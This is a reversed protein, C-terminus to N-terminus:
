RMGICNRPGDGFPFYCNTPRKAIEEQTFREPDFTEPDKWYREDYHFGVTPIWVLSDKPIVHKSNPIKYDAAAKRLNAFGPSYMRLVESVVQNLYTMEHLNDYTIEGNDAKTVEAIEKRLREQMEKRRSLEMLAFSITTSSTESGGFFFVFAQATIQNQTLKKMESSFEGDISGKNKLQILMNLFDARKDNTKERHKINDGVVNMFFNTLEVGFQRMKLFKAVKPFAMMFFLQLASIGETGFVEKGFKILEPHDGKLTDAEMGFAVSSIIDVTFRSAPDKADIAQGNKSAKEIAAVFSDGKDRVINFMAKLKGSTFVPSLKNRVFRWKDDEISVLHGTLPEDEENVYMGRNVFNSFDKIMINKVLELDTVLYTASITNYFGAVVDKGKCEDYAHRLIDVLHYKSGLGSMNGLPFSPEVYPIGLDKFFSFKRKILFYIVAVIPLVVYLAINLLSMKAKNIKRRDLCKSLCVVVSHSNFVTSSTIV